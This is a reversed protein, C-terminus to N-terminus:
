EARFRGSTNRWTSARFTNPSIRPRKGWSAPLKLMTEWKKWSDAREKRLASRWTACAVVVEDKPGFVELNRRINNLFPKHAGAFCIPFGKTSM